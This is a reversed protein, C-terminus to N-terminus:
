GGGRRRTSDNRARIAKAREELAELIAAQGAQRQIATWGDIRNNYEERRGPPPSFNFPLPLTIKGLHIKGPSFGWKNGDDDTVTWDLAREAAVGAAYMSDAIAGLRAYLPALAADFEPPLPVPPAPLDWLRPDDFRARTREALSRPDGLSRSPRTVTGRPPTIPVPTLSRSPQLDPEPEAARIPDSPDGDTPLVQVVRMGPAPVSAREAEAQAFAGAWSPVSFRLALFLVIHFAVSMAIGAPLLWKPDRPRPRVPASGATRPPEARAPRPPDLLQQTM